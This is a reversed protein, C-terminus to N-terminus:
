PRTRNELQLLRTTMKRQMTELEIRKATGRPLLMIRTRLAERQRALESADVQDIWALLPPAKRRRM